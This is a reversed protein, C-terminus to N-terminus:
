KKQIDAATINENNKQITEAMEDFSQFLEGFEDKRSQAIRYGFNGKKIEGFSRRLIQVPNSIASALAYAVVSAAVVTVVMLLLMTFIIQKSLEEWQMGLHIRGIAEGHFVVPADFDMMSSSSSEYRHISVDGAKAILEGNSIKDQPKGIKEPSSSGRIIGNRDVLTLYSFRQGVMADQIFVELFIWDENFVKEASEAAMFRVMSSGYETAQQVINAYQRKYLWTAGIIMTISVIATM